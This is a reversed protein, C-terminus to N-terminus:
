FIPPPYEDQHAVALVQVDDDLLVMPRDLAAAPGHQPELGVPGGHSEQADLERM